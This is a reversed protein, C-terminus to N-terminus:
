AGKVADRQERLVAVDAAPDFDAGAATLDAEIERRTLAPEGAEEDQSAKAKRKSGGKKGDGDHDLPDAVQWGLAEFEAVAAAPVNAQHSEPYAKPDRIMRVVAGPEMRKEQKGITTALGAVM